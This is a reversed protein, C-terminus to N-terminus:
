DAPWGFNEIGNSVIKNFDRFIGSLYSRNAKKFFDKPTLIQSPNGLIYTMNGLYTDRLDKIAILPEGTCVDCQYWFKSILSDNRKFEYHHIEAGYNFLRYDSRIENNSVKVHQYVQSREFEFYFSDSEKPFAINFSLLKDFGYPTINEGNRRFTFKEKFGDVGDFILNEKVYDSHGEKQYIIRFVEQNFYGENSFFIIHNRRKKFPYNLKINKIYTRLPAFQEYFLKEVTYMSDPWAYSSLSITLSFIILICKNIM